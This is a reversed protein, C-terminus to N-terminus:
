VIEPPIIPLIKLISLCNTNNEAAAIHLCTKIYQRCISKTFREPIRLVGDELDSRDYGKWVGNEILM